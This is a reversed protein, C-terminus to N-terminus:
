FVIFFFMKPVNANAATAASAMVDHLLDCGCTSGADSVALAGAAVMLSINRFINNM